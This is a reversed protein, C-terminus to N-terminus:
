RPVISYTVKSKQVILPSSYIIIYRRRRVQIEGLQRLDAEFTKGKWKVCDGVDNICESITNM